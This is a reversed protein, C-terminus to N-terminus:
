TVEIILIRSLCRKASFWDIHKYQRRGFINFHELFQYSKNREGKDFRWLYLMM